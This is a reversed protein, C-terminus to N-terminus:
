GKVPPDRTKGPEPQDGYKLHAYQDMGQLVFDVIQEGQVIYNRLVGIGEIEMEVLMGPEFWKGIDISSGLGITGSGLIAGPLITNNDSYYAVMEPGFFVRNDGTNGEFWVEGDVRISAKADRENFEDPTVLYPGLVNCFDKHKFM